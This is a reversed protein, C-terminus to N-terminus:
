GGNARPLHSPDKASMRLGVHRCLGSSGAGFRLGVGLIWLFGFGLFRLPVCKIFPARASFGLGWGEAWEGFALGFRIM